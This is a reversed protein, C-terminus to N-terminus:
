CHFSCLTNIGYINFFRLVVIPFRRKFAACLYEGEIKSQGYPNNVEIPDTERITTKGEIRYVSASSPFIVKAKNQEAALLVRLLGKTNLALTFDPDKISQTVSVQAALHVIVDADRTEIMFRDDFVDGGDRVDWSVASPIARMLHTGIFGKSGTIVIKKKSTGLLKSIDIM